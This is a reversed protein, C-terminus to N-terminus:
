IFKLILPYLGIIEIRIPSLFDGSGIETLVFVKLLPFDFNQGDWQGTYHDPVANFKILLVDNDDLTEQVSM